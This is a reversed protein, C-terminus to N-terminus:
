LTAVGYMNEIVVVKAGATKAAHFQLEFYDGGKNGARGKRDGLASFNKCSSCSLWITYQPLKDHLIDNTDGLCM